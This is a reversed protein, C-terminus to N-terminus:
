LMSSRYKTNWKCSVESKIIDVGYEIEFCVRHNRRLIIIKKGAPDSHFYIANNSYGYNLPVIYPEGEDIMAIRCIESKSLIEEILKQDTIEKEKRRM